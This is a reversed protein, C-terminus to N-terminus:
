RRAKQRGKWQKFVERIMKKHDDSGRENDSVKDSTGGEFFTDQFLLAKKGRLKPRSNTGHKESTMSNYYYRIFETWGRTEQDPIKKIGVEGAIKEMRERHYYQRQQLEADRRQEEERIQRQEEEHTQRQQERHLREQEARRRGQERALRANEIAVYGVDVATRTAVGIVAGAFGSELVDNPRPLTGDRYLSEAFSGIVGMAAGGGVTRLLRTHRDRTRALHEGSNQTDQGVPSTRREDIQQQYREIRNSM